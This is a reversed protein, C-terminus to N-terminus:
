RRPSACPGRPVAQAQAVALEAEELEAVARVCHDYYIRGVDTLRVTRTTRQLLRAGVRAELESIKRSVTSKPMGLQSAAATFGGQVWAPSPSSRASILLVHRSSWARM